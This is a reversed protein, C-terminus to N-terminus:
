LEDIVKFKLKYVPEIRMVAVFDRHNIIAIERGVNRVSITVRGDGTIVNNYIMLGHEKLDPSLDMVLQYGKPVKVSLGCDVVASNRHSLAIQRLGGVVAPVNAFLNGSDSPMFFASDLSIKILPVHSSPKEKKKRRQSM